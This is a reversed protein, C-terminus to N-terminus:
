RMAVVHEVNMEDCSSQRKQKENRTSASACERVPGVVRRQGVERINCYLDRSGRSVPIDLFSKDPGRFSVLVVDKKTGQFVCGEFIQVRCLM